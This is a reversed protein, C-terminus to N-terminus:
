ENCSNRSPDNSKDTKITISIMSILNSIWLLLNLKMNMLIYKSQPIGKLISIPNITWNLSSLKKIPINSEPIIITNNELPTHTKREAKNSM